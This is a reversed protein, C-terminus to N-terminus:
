MDSSLGAGLLMTSTFTSHVLYAATFKTDCAVLRLLVHHYSAFVMRKLVLREEEHHM